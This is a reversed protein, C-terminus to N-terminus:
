RSIEADDYEISLVFIKEVFDQSSSKYASHNFLQNQKFKCILYLLHTVGSQSFLTFFIFLFYM